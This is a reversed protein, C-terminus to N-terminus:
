IEKYSIGYYSINTFHHRTSDGSNARCQQSFYPLAPSAAAPENACEAGAGPADEAVVGKTAERAKAEQLRKMRLREAKERIDKNEAKM